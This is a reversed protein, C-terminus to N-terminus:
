FVEEDTAAAGHSTAPAPVDDDPDIAAASSLMFARAARYANAYAPHDAADTPDGMTLVPVSYDVTGRRNVELKMTCRATFAPRKSAQFITTFAKVPKIGSGKVQLIATMFGGDPLDLAFPLGWTESCWPIKARTPHTEWEKLPCSACSITRGNGTGEDTTFDAIKLGPVTKWPFRSPTKQDILGDVFNTSRCMPGVKEPGVEAPFLVRQKIVGLLVGNLAPLKQGTLSNLFVGETHVISLRPTQMDREDLQELGLMADDDPIAPLTM